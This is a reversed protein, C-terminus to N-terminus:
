ARGQPPITYEADRRVPASHWALNHVTTVRVHITGASIISGSAHGSAQRAPLTSRPHPSTSHVAKEFFAISPPLLVEDQYYDTDFYYSAAVAIELHGDGDIDGVAPTTMIHADLRLFSEEREHPAEFFSEDGWGGDDGFESYPDPPPRWDDAFEDDYHM